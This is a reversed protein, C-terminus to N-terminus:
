QPSPPSTQAPSSRLCKDLAPQLDKAIQPLLPQDIATGVRPWDVFGAQTFSLWRYLARGHLYSLPLASGSGHRWFRSDYSNRRNDGLMFVEDSPVLYPGQAGHPERTQDFFVLYAHGNLYEVYLNGSLTGQREQPFTASGVECDPIQWGNILVHDDRVLISDGALGIVRQVRTDSPEELSRFIVVEGRTPPRSALAAKDVMIHDGALLTPLMGGGPINFAESVFSRCSWRLGASLLVVAVCYLSVSLGRVPRYTAERIRFLDVLSALWGFCVLLLWGFFALRYGVAVGLPRVALLSAMLGLHLLLWLGARKTQGLYFQGSGLALLGLVLAVVRSPRPREKEDAELREHM